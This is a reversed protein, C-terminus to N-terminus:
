KNGKFDAIDPKIKLCYACTLNKLDYYYNVAAYYNYYMMQDKTPLHNSTPTTPTNTIPLGDIVNLQSLVPIFPNFVYDSLEPTYDQGLTGM